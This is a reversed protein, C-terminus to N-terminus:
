TVTQTTFDPVCTGERIGTHQLWLSALINGTHQWLPPPPPRLQRSTEVSRRWLHSCYLGELNMSCM